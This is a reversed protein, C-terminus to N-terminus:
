GTVTLLFVGVTAVAAGIVRVARDATQSKVFLGLALGTLHLLLTAILFGSGYGLVSANGPMEAGHAFGHLLAFVSVTLGSAWVPLRVAFAILLGLIAVSGAIGTEIGQVAIGAMGSLAGLVMMSPFVLPLVWRARPKSQAAWLGVALMALLHDLGFLPHSLGAAFGTLTHSVDVHALAPTTVFLAIFFGIARRQISTKVLSM